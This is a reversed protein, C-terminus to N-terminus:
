HRATGRTAAENILADALLLAGPTSTALTAGLELSTFCQNRDGGLLRRSIKTVALRASQRRPGRSDLSPHQDADPRPVYPFVCVWGRSAEALPKRVVATRVM